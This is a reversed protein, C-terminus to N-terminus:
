RQAALAAGMCAKYEDPSKFPHFSVVTPNSCARWNPPPDCNEEVLFRDDLKRDAGQVKMLCQDMFMDEGWKCDGGCLVAFRARCVDKGSWWSSVANRSLVEIPGHMGRRCNNIYTGAPSEGYGALIARLRAPFFVTDPDVKVTWDYHQYRATQVVMQWVAIFIELNLATGFEGGKECQLSSQVPITMVGPAVEFVQNSYVGMEDCQFIHSRVDYQTRVMGVEYTGPVVLAFCYLSQGPPVDHTPLQRGVQLPAGSVYDPDLVKTVSERPFNTKLACSRMSKQVSWGFCQPEQACYGCCLTADDVNPITKMDNGPYNIGDEVLGCPGPTTTVTYTVTSTSTFTYTNVPLGLRALTNATNLVVVEPLQRISNGLRGLNNAIAGAAASPPPIRSIPNVQAPQYQPQYQAQYQPQYQPQPEPQPPTQPATGPSFLRQVSM